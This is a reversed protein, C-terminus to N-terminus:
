SLNVKIVCCNQLSSIKQVVLPKMGRGCTVCFVLQDSQISGCLMGVSKTEDEM